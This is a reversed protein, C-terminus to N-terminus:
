RTDWRVPIVRVQRQPVDLVAQASAYWWALRERVSSNRDQGCRVTRLVNLVVPKTRSKTTLPYLAALLLEKVTAQGVLYNAFGDRFRILAERTVAPYEYRRVESTSFALEMQEQVHAPPNHLYLHKPNISRILGAFNTIVHESLSAYDSSEVVVRKPRPPREPLAAEQGHIVHMHRRNAEDREYAIELLSEREQKGLQEEFWALPGYYVTVKTDSPM